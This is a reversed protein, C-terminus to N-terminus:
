RPWRVAIGQRSKGAAHPWKMDVYASAHDYWSGASDVPREWSM